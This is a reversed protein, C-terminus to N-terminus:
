MLDYVVRVNFKIYLLYKFEIKFYRYFIYLFWELQLNKWLVIWKVNVNDDVFQEICYLVIFWLLVVKEM